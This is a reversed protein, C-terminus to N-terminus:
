KRLHEKVRLLSSQVRGYLAYLEQDRLDWAENRLKTVETYLVEIKELM